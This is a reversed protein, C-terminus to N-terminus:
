PVQVLSNTTSFVNAGAPNDIRIDVRPNSLQVHVPDRPNPFTLGFEAAHAHVCEM